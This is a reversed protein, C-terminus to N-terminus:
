AAAIAGVPVGSARKSCDRCVRRRGLSRQDSLLQYEALLQYDEACISGLIILLTNHILQKHVLTWM